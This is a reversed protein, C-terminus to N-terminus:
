AGKKWAVVRVNIGEWDEGRNRRYAWGRDRVWEM